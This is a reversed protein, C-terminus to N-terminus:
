LGIFESETVTQGNMAEWNIQMWDFNDIHEWFADSGVPLAKSQMLDRQVSSSEQHQGIEVDGDRSFGRSISESVCISSLERLFSADLFDPFHQHRVM